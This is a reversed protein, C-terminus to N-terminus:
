TKQFIMSEGFDTILIYKKGAKLYQKGLLFEKLMESCESWNKPLESENMIMSNPWPNFWDVMLMTVPRGGGFCFGEPYHDPLEFVRCFNDQEPYLDNFDTM